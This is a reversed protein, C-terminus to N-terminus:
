SVSVLYRNIMSKVAYEDTYDVLVLHFQARVLVGLSRLLAKNDMGNSYKPDTPSIKITSYTFLHVMIVSGLYNDNM